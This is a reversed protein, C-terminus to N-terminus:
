PCSLHLNLFGIYCSACMTLPVFHFWFNFLAIYFNPFHSLKQCFCFVHHFKQSFFARGDYFENLNWVIKPSLKWFDLCKGLYLQGIPKWSKHSAWLKWWSLLWPKKKGIMGCGKTSLDRSKTPVWRGLKELNLAPKFDGALDWDTQWLFKMPFFASPPKGFFAQGPFSKSYKQQRHKWNSRHPTRILICCGVSRFAEYWTHGMCFM